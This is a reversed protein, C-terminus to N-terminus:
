DIRHLEVRRNLARGAASQNDAIPDDEGMGSAQLRDPSIGRGVLYNLVSEARKRSLRKNYLRSGVSDTHGRIEVEVEPWEVLSEYVRNLIQFSEDTLVAKGTEFNVGRLVVRGRKIEKARPKEKPKPCGQNDKDGPVDPCNDLSDPVNDLDNDPDPCGDTDQFGDTDEPITICHDSTDPIGDNDNDMDPCGDNDEFGDLDEPVMPCGDEIDAVLDKDNDPDLCGDEDEFGDRDEAENPCKDKLDVIGDNDNDTDPCGDEDEFGDIDEPDTPCRDLNDKIGDQDKDQPLIFGSWGVTGTLRWQPEIHTRVRKGYKYYQDLSDSSLNIDAGLTLFFGGAPTFGVGPSLRLPDEGVRFGSEINRIRAEGSFDTFLHFWEVPSYEFAINLLFLHDLRTDTTWRVGYNVHLQVPADEHLEKLDFTWLMKMDIEPMTSSYYAIVDSDASDKVLYYTHRPFYGHVRDGTPITVAGWYATEWFRRHPYPPYQFKLALEMDGFGGTVSGFNHPPGSRSVKDFYVPLTGSLDLFRTIGFGLSPHLTTMFLAPDYGKEISLGTSTDVVSQLYGRDTSMSGYLGVTLRGMGVTKASLSHFLGVQGMRNILPATYHVRGHIQCLCSLVLLSGISWSRKTM